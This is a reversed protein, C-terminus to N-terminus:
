RFMVQIPLRGLLLEDGKSLLAPVHPTVRLSRIYTGNTSQMDTIFIQKNILSIQAHFRSVGRESAGYSTLDLEDPKQDNPEFRGLKLTQGHRLIFREFIGHLILNVEYGEELHIPTSSTLDTSTERPVRLISPALSTHSFTLTKSYLGTLKPLNNSSM